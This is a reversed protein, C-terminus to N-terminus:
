NILNEVGSMGTWHRPSHDVSLFPTPQRSVYEITWSFCFTDKLESINQWLMDRNLDRTLYTWVYVPTRNLIYTNSKGLYSRFYYERTAVFIQKNCQIWWNLKKKCILWIFENTDSFSNTIIGIYHSIFKICILISNLLNSISGIIYYLYLM